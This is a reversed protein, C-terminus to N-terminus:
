CFIDGCNLCKRHELGQAIWRAHGCQGCLHPPQNGKHVLSSAKRITGAGLTSTASITSQMVGFGATGALTHHPSFVLNQESFTATACDACFLRQEQYPDAM